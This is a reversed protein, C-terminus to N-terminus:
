ENTNDGMQKSVESWVFKVSSVGSRTKSVQILSPQTCAKCFAKVRNEQKQQITGSESSNCGGTGAGMAPCDYQVMSTRMCELGQQYCELQLFLDENGVVSNSQYNLGASHILAVNIGVAQQLQARSSKGFAKKKMSWSFPRYSAGFLAENDWLLEWYRLVRRWNEPKGAITGSARVVGREEDWISVDLRTVDDDVMFVRDIGKSVAYNFMARRTEGIDKVHKLLVLYTDPRDKLWLYSEREEKRVFVYLPFKYLASRRLFSANPRQYSPVFVPIM